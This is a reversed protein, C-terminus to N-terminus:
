NLVLKRVAPNRSDQLHIFYMGKRLNTLDLDIQPSNTTVSHVIKGFADSVVVKAQAEFGNWTIHVLGESPNPSIELSTSPEVQPGNGMKAGVGGGCVDANVGGIDTFNVVNYPNPDTLASNSHYWEIGPSNVSGTLRYPGVIADFTNGNHAVPSGQDGISANQFDVGTWCRRLFNCELEAGSMQGIVEIGNGFGSLTNYRVTSGDSDAIRIGSLPGVMAQTAPGSSTVRSCQNGRLEAAASRTVEIGRFDFGNGLITADDQDFVVVNQRLYAGPRKAIRIGVQPFRIVNLQIDTTAGGTSGQNSVVIGDNLMGSVSNLAFLDLRNRKIDIASEGMNNCVIGQGWEIIRNDQIVTPNPGPNHVQIGQFEITNFVNFRIETAVNNMAAIGRTCNTFQNAASGPGGVSLNVASGGNLGEFHIGTGTSSFLSGNNNRTFPM